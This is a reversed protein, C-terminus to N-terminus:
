NIQLSSVTGDRHLKLVVVKEGLYIANGVLIDKAHYDIVEGNKEATWMWRDKNQGGLSLQHWVIVKGKQASKAASIDAHKM